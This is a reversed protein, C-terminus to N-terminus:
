VTQEVNTDIRVGPGMTSSLVVSRVYQGKAAAPKARLLAQLLAEINEVLAESAFSLKGVAGNFVGQKDLKYEIKGAKYETVAAKPDATVTGAKPTPMLGRPGLVKGLRGVHRMMDPTTIVVDFDTWGGQVKALLEDAGVYDAGAEEAAEARDGKAFVLVRLKKGTGHPLAVTGRVQQDAKRTDVGLQVSLDVSEDFKVPPCAKLKEVAEKLTYSKESDVHETFKKTRKSKTM